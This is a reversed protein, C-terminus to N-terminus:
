ATDYEERLVLFAMNGKARINQVRARIILSSDNPLENLKSL